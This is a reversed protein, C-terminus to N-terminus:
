EDNTLAEMMPALKWSSEDLEREGVSDRVLGCGAFLHAAHGEVLAARLAVSLHGTGDLAVFGVGGAYWGRDFPETLSIQQLAQDRPSGGVAPTPHLADAADWITRGPRLRAEVPSLLHLVEGRTVVEPAPPMRIEDAVTDLANRVYRRVAAHERRDKESQDLFAPGKDRPATGALCMTSLRDPTEVRALTEPTAGMWVPGVTSSSADPHGSQVLFRETGPNEAVARRWVRDIAVPDRFRLSVMRALVVKELGFGLHQVLRDVQRVWEEPSPVFEVGALQPAGHTVPSAEGTLWRWRASVETSSVKSSVKSRGVGPASLAPPVILDLRVEDGRREVQIEPLVFRSDPWPTWVSTRHPNLGPRFRWGGGLAVHGPLGFSKLTQWATKTEQLCNRGAGRIVAAEGLGYRETGDASIVAWSAASANWRVDPAQSWALSFHRWQRDPHRMRDEIWEGVAPLTGTWRSM